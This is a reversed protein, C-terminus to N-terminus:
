KHLGYREVLELFYYIAKDTENSRFFEELLIANEYVQIVQDEPILIIAVQHKCPIYAHVMYESLLNKKIVDLTPELIALSSSVAYIM